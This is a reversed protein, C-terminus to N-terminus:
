QFNGMKERFIMGPFREDSFVGGGDIEEVVKNSAEFM